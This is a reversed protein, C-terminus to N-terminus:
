TAGQTAKNYLKILLNFHLFIDLILHQRKLYYFTPLHYHNFGVEKHLSLEFRAM